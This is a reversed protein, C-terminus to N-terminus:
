EDDNRRADTRGNGLERFTTVVLIAWAIASGPNFFTGDFRQEPRDRKVQYAREVLRMAAVLRRVIDRAHNEDASWEAEKALEGPDWAGGYQKESM